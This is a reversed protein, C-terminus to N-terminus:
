FIKYTTKNGDCYYFLNTVDEYLHEFYGNATKHAFEARGTMPKEHIQINVKSTIPFFTKKDVPM